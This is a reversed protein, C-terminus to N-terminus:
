GHGTAVILALSTASSGLKTPWPLNGLPIARIRAGERRLREVALWPGPIVSKDSWLPRLAPFCDHLLIVGGPALRDLALPLERYVTKAAHDGDLFVFDFKKDTEELFELSRRTVFHVLGQYGLARVMQEPSQQSGYRQWPRAVPDNVDEIDVTWLGEVAGDADNSDLAAAMCLTSAGIHTGIELVARPRFHHILTYIARRDGPNVGGARESIGIQALRGMLEETGRAAARDALLGPLDVQDQRVLASTNPARTGVCRLELRHRLITLRKRIVGPLM